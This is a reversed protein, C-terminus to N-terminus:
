DVFDFDWMLGVLDDICVRVRVRIRIVVRGLTWCVVKVAVGSLFFFLGVEESVWSISLFGFIRILGM